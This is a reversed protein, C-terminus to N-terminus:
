ISVKQVDVANDWHVHGYLIAERRPQMQFQVAVPIFDCFEVQGLQLNIPISLVCAVSYAGSMLAAKFRWDVVYRGGRKAGRISKGEIVSDSYVVDVGNRDRIHYGYALMQLDRDVEVAMRLVLDQEYEVDVIERGNGDLLQVNVFSAKGNRIRQFDARKRFELGPLFTASSDPASGLSRGRSPEYDIIGQEGEVKRSFYREVVQDPKGACIVKGNDLLIAKKCLSKVSAMDHSVFVLTIGDEIMAKMKTMCKAQFFMDGVALAEDVVLIDPDIHIAAAFALRVQMGSSYTKIPQDIFEGIDAFESIAQFRRDMEQSTMGLLAGSMYVNERGTFEPNFGTGLELLASLKGNKVVSGESPQLIGCIIQLLTSKGSGNRGIIGFTEGKEIEFSVENLAWFDHHYKRRLPHFAEKLRHSPRDYLRYKKSVNNVSIAIESAM